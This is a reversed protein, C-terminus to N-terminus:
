VTLTQLADAPNVAFKGTPSTKLKEGLRRVPDPHNKTLLDFVNHKEEVFFKLFVWNTYKL